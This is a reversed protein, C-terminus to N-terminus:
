SGAQCGGPMTYRCHFLQDCTDTHVALWVGPRYTFASAGTLSRLAAHGSRLAHRSTCKFLNRKISHLAANSVNM